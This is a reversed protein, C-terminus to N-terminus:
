LSDQRVARRPTNATNRTTYGLRFFHQPLLSNDPLLNALEQRQSPIELIQSLPQISL